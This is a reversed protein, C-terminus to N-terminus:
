YPYESFNFMNHAAEAAGYSAAVIGLAAAALVGILVGTRVPSFATTELRSVEAVDFSAAPAAKSEVVLQDRDVTAKVPGEFGTEWGNKEVVKVSGKASVFGATPLEDPRHSVTAHCGVLLFSILAAFSRISM